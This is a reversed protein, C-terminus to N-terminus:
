PKEETSQVIVPGFYTSSNLVTDENVVVEEGLLASTNRSFILEARQDGQVVAVGIGERGAADSADEILQVGELMAAVEFLAARMRPAAYTERLLDGIILLTSLEGPPGSVVSRSEIARALQAPDTPLSALDIFALGGPDFAEDTRTGEPFLAPSGAAEWRDEDAESLFRPSHMAEVLRGSGDSGIWAQRSFSVQYSFEIGTEVDEWSRIETGVTRTYVYEGPTPTIREQNVALDALRELAGAAPSPAFPLSVVLMAILATAAAGAWAVRRVSGRRWWQVAREPPAHVASTIASELRREARERVASDPGSVAPAAAKVLALEDV